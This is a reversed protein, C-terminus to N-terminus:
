GRLQKLFANIKLSLKEVEQEEDLRILISIQPPTKTERGRSFKYEYFTDNEIKAHRGIEVLNPFNKRYREDIKTYQLCEVFFARENNEAKKIDRKKGICLEFDDGQNITIRFYEDGEWNVENFPGLAKELIRRLEQLV